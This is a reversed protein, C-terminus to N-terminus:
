IPRPETIAVKQVNFPNQKWTPSTETTTKEEKLKEEKNDLIIWGRFPADKSPLDA